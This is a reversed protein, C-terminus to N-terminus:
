LLSLSLSLSLTKAPRCRLPAAPAKTRPGGLSSPCLRPVVFGVLTANSRKNPAETESDTSYTKRVFGHLFVDRVFCFRRRITYFCCCCCCCFLLLLLPVAASTRVSRRCMSVAASMIGSSLMDTPRSPVAPLPRPVALVRRYLRWRGEDVEPEPQLPAVVGDLVDEVIM